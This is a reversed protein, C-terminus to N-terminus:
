VPIHGGPPAFMGTSIYGNGTSSKISVSASTSYATHLIKDFRDPPGDPIHAPCRQNQIPAAFIYSVGSAMIHILTTSRTWVSNLSTRRISSDVQCFTTRIFFPPTLNHYIPRTSTRHLITVTIKLRRRPNAILKQSMMYLNRALLPVPIAERSDLRSWYITDM